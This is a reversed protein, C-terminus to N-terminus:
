QKKNVSRIFRVTLLLASLSLGVIFGLWIGQAQMGLPFAFLYGIPIGLVWYAIAIFGTPVNVDKIGRLLGASTAQIADSVQFVAAFILLVGALTIVKKNDNFLQPLYNNFILFLIACLIGYGVAIALTSKGIYNILKWNNAGFATSTRISGAQSLGLSVMFTFSACTLAIQHAALAIASITGIMIGSIYFAGAEMGIQMSSPIGIKLLQILSERKLEWHTAAVAIYQKFINHKLVLTGLALFIIIRTILTAYGAGVLEMKPFGLNGYILVWNLFINIPIAMFSFFMPIRTYQLGDTFQKLTMFLIMPTISIGMIKMFPIALEVVEPDQGLHRLINSSPLLFLSILIGSIASLWFGNYFYHSALAKDNRGRAMSVLQAVSITIGIGFIFPVNIVNIVLAAAALHKYSVAGIMATDILHLSMQALEGLIIPYALKITNKAEIHYLSQM